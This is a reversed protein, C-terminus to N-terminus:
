RAPTWGPLLHTECVLGTEILSHWWADITGRTEDVPVGVEDAVRAALGDITDPSERLWELLAVAENSVIVSRRSTPSYAVWWAGDTLPAAKVGPCCAYVAAGPQM